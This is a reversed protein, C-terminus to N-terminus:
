FSTRQTDHLSEDAAVCQGLALAWLVSTLNKLTVMEPTDELLGTLPMSPHSAEEPKQVLSVGHYRKIMVLGHAGDSGNGTLLVGAVREGFSAAASGFLVDVAPRSFHVKAGRSLEIGSPKFLMHRDAPAFFVTGQELRAGHGGERVRVRAHQGYLAALDM